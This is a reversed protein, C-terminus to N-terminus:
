AERAEWLEEALRRVAPRMVKGLIKAFRPNLFPNSTTMYRHHGIVIVHYQKRAWRRLM